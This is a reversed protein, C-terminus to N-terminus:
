GLRPERPISGSDFFYKWDWVFWAYPAMKGSGTVVGNRWMPVRWSFVWVKSLPTSEFLLKRRQSELFQLRLLMAVKGNLARTLKLSMVVFEQALNYPPNTIISGVGFFEGKLFDVGTDGYCRDILDTSDVNYGHEKLVESINGEGCAPELVPSEFKEVELLAKIASPPTPYFDDKPRKGDMDHGVLSHARSKM